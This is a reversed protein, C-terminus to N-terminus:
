LRLTSQKAGPPGTFMQFYKFASTFKVPTDPLNAHPKWVSKRKASTICGAKAVIHIDTKPSEFNRATCVKEIM